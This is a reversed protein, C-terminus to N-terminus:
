NILNWCKGIYVFIGVIYDIYIEFQFFWVLIYWNYTSVFGWKYFTKEGTIYGHGYRCMLMWGDYSDGLGASTRPCPDTEKWSKQTPLSSLDCYIGPTGNRLPHNVLVTLNM